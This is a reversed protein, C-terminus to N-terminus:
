DIKLQEYERRLLDLQEQEFNLRSEIVQIMEPEFGQKKYQLAVFYEKLIQLTLALDGLKNKRLITVGNFVVSSVFTVAVSAEFPGFNFLAYFIIGVGTIVIMGLIKAWMLFREARKILSHNFSRLRDLESILYNVLSEKDRIQKKLEERKRRIDESYTKVKGSRTIYYIFLAFLLLLGLLILFTNKNKKM